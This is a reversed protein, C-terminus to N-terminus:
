FWASSICIVAFTSTQWLQLKCRMGEVSVLFRVLYNTHAVLLQLINAGLAFHLESLHCYLVSILGPVPETHPQWGTPGDCGSVTEASSVLLVQLELFCLHQCVFMGSSGYAPMHRCVCGAGVKEGSGVPLPLLASFLFTIWLFFAVGEWIIGKMCRIVVILLSHVILALFLHTLSM